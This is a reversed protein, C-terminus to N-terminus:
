CYLISDRYMRHVVSHRAVTHMVVFVRLVSMAVKLFQLGLSILNKKENLAKALKLVINYAAHKPESRRDVLLCQSVDNYCSLTDRRM